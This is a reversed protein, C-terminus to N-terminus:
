RNYIFKELFEEAPIPRSYLYGQGYDCGIDRLLAEDEATEVGECVTKMGLDKAMSVIHELIKRGNGSASDGFFERDIKLIDFPMERLTNLSSYGSGFDDMDIICGEDHLEKMVDIITEKDETFVTETIEIEVLSNDFEYSGYLEKVRDVYGPRLMLIRSQNVSIPVPELGEDVLRKQLALSMELMHFDIKEIFSNQEFVPIFKDPFVMSGDRKIWRVLAEAGSVKGTNLDFKPQLFLKFEDHALAAEQSAEIEERLVMEQALQNNYMVLVEDSDASISKRASTAKDLLLALDKDDETVKIAGARLRIPVAIDVSRAFSRVDSSVIQLRRKWDPQYYVFMEFLDATNRALIEKKGMNQLLKDALMHLVEDGRERGYLENIHRFGVLDVVILMRRAKDKDDSSVIAGAEMRLYIKTRADTISDRFAIKDVRLELRYTIISFILALVLILLMDMSILYKKSDGMSDMLKRFSPKGQVTLFVFDENCEALSSYYIIYDGPGTNMDLYGNDNDTALKYFNPFEGGFTFGKLYTYFNNLDSFDVGNITGNSQLLVDGAHNIVLFIDDENLESGIEEIVSDEDWGVRAIVYGKCIGASNRVPASIALYNRGQVSREMLVRAGSTYNYKKLARYTDNDGYYVAQGNALVCKGSYDVYRIDKMYDLSAFDSLVEGILKHDMQNNTYKTVNNAASLILGQYSDLKEELLESQTINDHMADEVMVNQQTVEIYILHFILACIVCVIVIRIMDTLYKSSPENSWDEYKHFLDLFFDKM